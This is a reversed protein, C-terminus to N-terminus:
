SLMKQLREAYQNSKEDAGTIKIGSPEQVGLKLEVARAIQEQEFVPGNAVEPTTGLDRLITVGVADIAIRDTGALMVHPHELKGRAPGGEVFADIGDLIVLTPTYIQNIEAILKRQHPSSHLERMFEYGQRPVFGVALKLSFTFHGGFQHTKLCPLAIIADVSQIFKPFLFGNKWNSDSQQVPQFQIWESHPLSSLDLIDFGGIEKQLAFLGKTEMTDHTDAPGAREVVTIKKVGCIKLHTILVRIIEIDTSAPPPDATNFNPKIAVRKGKLAEFLSKYYSFIIKMGKIRDDTKVLFVETM